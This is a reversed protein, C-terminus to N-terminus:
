ILKSEQSTKEMGTVTKPKSNQNIITIHKPIKKLKHVTITKLYYLQKLLRIIKHNSTAPLLFARSRSFQKTSNHLRTHHFGVYVQRKPSPCNKRPRQSSLCNTCLSNRPNKKFDTELLLNRTIRAPKLLILNKVNSVKQRRTPWNNCMKLASIKLNIIKENTKKSFGFHCQNLNINFQNNNLRLLVSCISNKNQNFNNTRIDSNIKRLFQVLTITTFKKTM